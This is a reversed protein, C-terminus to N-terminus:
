SSTPPRSGSSRARKVPQAGRLGRPSEASEPGLRSERRGGLRGSPAGRARCAASPPAPARAQGRRDARSSSGVVPRSWARFLFHLLEDFLHPGLVVRGDEETRMVQGLRPAPARRSRSSAVARSSGRVLELRIRPRSRSSANKAALPWANSFPPSAPNLAILRASRCPSTPRAADDLRLM